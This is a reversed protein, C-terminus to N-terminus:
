GRVRAALPSEPMPGELSARGDRIKQFIGRLGGYTQDAVEASMHCFSFNWSKGFLLQAKACEQLFLALNLDSSGKVVGRTPYGQLQIVGSALENVSEMFEQGASWLRELDFKKSLLLTMVADAAALSVTDGAYTSSVFYGPDDMLEKKGAVYALPFGNAIAKGGCILDPTVNMWNCVAFKPWRFNTIVEDFIVLIGRKRCETMLTKLWSQRSESWDLIVPEIIVAAVDRSLNSMDSKLQQTNSPLKKNYVDCFETHFGHYGDSLVLERGTANRAIKLAATCADSGTKTWKVRDVFPLCEKLKEAAAVEYQTALSHSVGGQMAAYAARNVTENAQGLINTGLGCIYDVYKKGNEDWSYAGHSKVIHTPTIGRIHSKPHKSNTLCQQAICNQSREWLTAKM